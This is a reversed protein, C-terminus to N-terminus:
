GEKKSIYEKKGYYWGGWKSKIKDAFGRDVIGLAVRNDKGIARSIEDIFGNIQYDIHYYSCKDVYKKKTNESADEAILVFYVKKQRINKMLVDGTVIKKARMALGLLSLVNKDLM